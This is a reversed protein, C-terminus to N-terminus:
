NIISIKYVFNYLYLHYNIFLINTIIINKKTKKVKEVKKARKANIIEIQARKKISKILIKQSNTARLVLKDKLM